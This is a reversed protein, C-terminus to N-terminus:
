DAMEEENMGQFYVAMMMASMQYDPIEGDVYGSVMDHIEQQTLAMGGAKKEIVDVFRM